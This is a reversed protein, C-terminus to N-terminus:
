ACLCAPCLVWRGGPEHLEDRNRKNNRQRCATRKVRKVNSFRVVVRPERKPWRFTQPYLSSRRPRIYTGHRTPTLRSQQHPSPSTLSYASKLRKSLADPSLLHAQKDAEVQPVADLTQVEHPTRTHSAHIEAAPASIPVELLWYPHHHYSTLRGQRKYSFHEPCRPTCM